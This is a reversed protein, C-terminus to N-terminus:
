DEIGKTREMGGVIESCSLIVQKLRGKGSGVFLKQDNGEKSNSGLRLIELMKMIKIEAKPVM